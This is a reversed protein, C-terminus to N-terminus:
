LCACAVTSAACVASILAALDLIAPFVALTVARSVVTAFLWDAIALRTLVTSVCVPCFVALMVLVDFATVDNVPLTDAICVTFTSAM